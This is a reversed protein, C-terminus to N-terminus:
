RDSDSTRWPSRSPGEGRRLQEETVSEVDAALEVLSQFVSDCANWKEMLKELNRELAGWGTTRGDTFKTLANRMAFMAARIGSVQRAM